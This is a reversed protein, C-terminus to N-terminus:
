NRWMYLNGLEGQLQYVSKAPAYIKKLREILEEITAYSSCYICKRAEGSLKGRLLRALNEQAAGVPLMAKAELCGEFFHSFPINNGDFMPVVELADRLSVQQNNPLAMANNILKSNNLDENESADNDSDHISILLKHQSKVATEIEETNIIVTSSFANEIDFNTSENVLTNDQNKSGSIYSLDPDISSHSWNDFSSESGSIETSFNKDTALTENLSSTQSSYTTNTRSQSLSPSSSKGSIEDGQNFKIQTNRKSKPPGIQNQTVIKALDTNQKTQSRTVPTTKPNIKELENPKPGSMPCKSITYKNKNLVTGSLDFIFNPLHEFHSLKM